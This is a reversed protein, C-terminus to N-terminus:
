HLPIVLAAATAAPVNYDPPLRWTAPTCAQTQSHQIERCSTASPAAILNSMCALRNACPSALGGHLGAIRRRCTKNHSLMSARRSQLDAQHRCATILRFTAVPTVKCIIRDLKCPVRLSRGLRPCSYIARLCHWLCVFRRVGGPLHLPSLYLTPRSIRTSSVVVAFLLGLVKAGLAM